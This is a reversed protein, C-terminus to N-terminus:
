ECLPCHIHHCVVHVSAVVRRPARLLVRHQQELREVEVAVVARARGDHVGDRAVAQEHVHRLVRELRGHVQEVRM